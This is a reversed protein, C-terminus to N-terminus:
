PNSSYQARISPGGSCLLVNVATRSGKVRGQIKRERERERERESRSGQRRKVHDWSQFGKGRLRVIKESQGDVAYKGDALM